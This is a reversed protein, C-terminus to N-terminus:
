GYSYITYEKRINAVIGANIQLPHLLKVAVTEDANTSKIKAKFVIGFTGCGLLINTTSSSIDYKSELVSSSPIKKFGGSSVAM